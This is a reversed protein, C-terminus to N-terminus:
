VKQNGGLVYPGAYSFFTGGNLVDGFLRFGIDM